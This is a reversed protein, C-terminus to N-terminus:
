GGGFGRNIADIRGEAMGARREYFSIFDSSPRRTFLHSFMHGFGEWNDYVYAFSITRNDNILDLIQVSEEDHLYKNKLAIEYYAPLIQKYGEASMAEIIIGTRTLSEGETTQPIIFFEDVSFARYSAQNEDYKPQPLIGYSIDSARFTNVADRIFGYAFLAQNDAFKQTHWGSAVENVYVGESNYYWDYMKNVFTTTKENNIVLTLVDNNKDLVPIDCSVFFGNQLSHSVYGYFDDRDREGDGNTDIYVGKTMETLRDLTWKGDFVLQYPLEMDYEALRDKNFYVVKTSSIGSYFITNSGLFMKNFLTLEENTQSQWWPKSFNFHPVDLLNAAVNELTLNPGLICHVLAIDFADDGSLVARKVADAHTSIDSANSDVTKININFRDEVTKNRRFVSDNIVEGIESDPAYDYLGGPLYEGYTYIRFTYGGFDSQPLDDSIIMRADANEIEAEGINEQNNNQMDLNDANEGSTNNDNGCSSLVFLILLATIFLIKKTINM